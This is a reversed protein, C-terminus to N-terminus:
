ILGNLYKNVNQTEHHLCKELLFNNSLNIFIPKILTKIDSPLSKRTKYTEKGTIQDSQWKCWSNETGPCFHHRQEDCQVKESCHFFVARLRCGLRKQIHGVCELKNIIFTGKSLRTLHAPTVM